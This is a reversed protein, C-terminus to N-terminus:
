LTMRGFIVKLIDQLSIIGLERQDPGLAVALRAGARQMRRLAEELHVNAPLFYAPRMYERAPKDRDLDERYLTEDMNLVGIIRGQRSDVVPLRTLNRESCIDLAARMPASAEVYAVNSMPVMVRGVRLTQLDLVRNIMQREESTLGHAAEQMMFRLEERSGFLRGTFARGGTLRLLGRGFWDAVATLPSLLSDVARFPGAVLASFPPTNIPISNFFCRPCFSAFSTFFLYRSLSLPFGFSLASM